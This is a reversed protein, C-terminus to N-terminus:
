PLELVCIGLNWLSLGRLQCLMPLYSSTFRGGTAILWWKEAFSGPLCKKVLRGGKRRGELVKSRTQLCGMTSKGPPEVKVRLDATLGFYRRSRRFKDGYKGVVAAKKGSDFLTKCSNTCMLYVWEGRTWQRPLLGTAERKNGKFLPPLGQAPVICTQGLKGSYHQLRNERNWTGLPGSYYTWESHLLM